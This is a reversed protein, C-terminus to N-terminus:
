RDVQMHWFPCTWIECFKRYMNGTRRSLGARLVTCYTIYKRNQPHPWTQGYHVMSCTALLAYGWVSEGPPMGTRNGQKYTIQSLGHAILTIKTESQIVWQILPKMREKHLVFCIVKLGCLKHLNTTSRYGAILTFVADAIHYYLVRINNQKM